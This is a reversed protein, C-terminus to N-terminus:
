HHGLPGLAHVTRSDPEFSVLAHRPGDDGEALRYVRQPSPEDGAPYRGDGWLSEPNFKGEHESRLEVLEETRLATVNTQFAQLHIKAKDFIGNSTDLISNATVIQDKLKVIAAVDIVAFQAVATPSGIAGIFVGAIVAVVTTKQM